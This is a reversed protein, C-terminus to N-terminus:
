SDFFSDPLPIQLKKNVYKGQFQPIRSFFAEGTTLCLHTLKVNLGDTEAYFLAYRIDCPRMQKGELQIELPEVSDPKILGLDVTQSTQLKVELLQNRIDPFRGDDQYGSYGLQICIMKHLGMGRRREQDNGVDSFTNGILLSLRDFVIKIPLLTKQNPEDIPKAEIKGHFLNNKIKDRLVITDEPAVLEAKKDGIIFRAQHKQTLTGTKDLSALVDGSIVKVRDVIDKPSVRIIVYRRTLSIEENWIQLNNSKQIYTDFQQGPFRPHTKNFTTPAPYGLSKCVEM